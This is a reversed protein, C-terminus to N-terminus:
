SYEHELKTHIYMQLKRPYVDLPLIIADHPFVLSKKKKLEQILELRDTNPSNNEDNYLNQSLIRPGLAREM